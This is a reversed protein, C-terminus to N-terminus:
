MFLEQEDAYYTSGGNKDVMISAGTPSKEKKSNHIKLFDRVEGAIIDPHAKLIEKEASQLVSKIAKALEKVKADPIKNSISFPSIKAKWLIEDAYANGIGRIVDQNTIRAKINAKSQLAQKLYAVDLKKSLADIGEKDVPNLKINAKRQFDTVALGKGAFHLEVLTFKHENKENFEALKGHLMLHLGLVKENSFLFRLEKGSRAVSTLTAGKLNTNLSAETDKLNQGNIVKIQKLEMGGFLKNLNKAFVQLDPIEPM